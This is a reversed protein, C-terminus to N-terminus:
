SNLNLSNAAKNAILKYALYKINAKYNSYKEDELEECSDMKIKHVIKKSYFTDNLIAKSLGNYSKVEFKLFAPYIIELDINKKYDSTQIPLIKGNLNAISKKVVLEEIISGIELGKVAYYKYKSKTTEDVAEQIDENTLELIKGNPNIVRLKNKLIETRKSEFIYVKNSKEIGHDTNVKKITHTLEYSFVGTKEAVVEVAYKDQLYVVHKKSEYDSMTIQPLSDKWQYNEYEYNQSHLTAYTVLLFTLFLLKM